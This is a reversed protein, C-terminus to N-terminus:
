GKLSSTIGPLIVLGGNPGEDETRTIGQAIVTGGTKRPWLITIGPLFDMGESKLM